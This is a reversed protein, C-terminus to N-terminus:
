PIRSHCVVPNEPLVEEVLCAIAGEHLKVEVKDGKQVDSSSKIISRGPLKYTISYGRSLIALPSLSDLRAVVGQFGEKKLALIHSFNKFISKMSTDLKHKFLQIRHEPNFSSIDKILKEVHHQRDKIIIKIANKLRVEVDDLRQFYRGIEREPSFVRASLSNIRERKKGLFTKQAYLLGQYLTGLHRLIDEKNKVVMEAAASPTPARLDAVFDAITYDIEHGVASIVPIRSNCIARAVIEENFPWLDEIGGGGRTVIIVDIGEIRNLDGIADVIEPAAREGQVSAPAIVIEVSAFRREIVTLIDRIAAGTPSTVIGIKKPFPPIPRKRAENFLGEKSLREKLQEFAMLLAGIGRPEMYEIVIQYEGRFEYVSIRGRCLVHLGEKPVFKLMRASPRFLVARIQSSSDKLTFYIHGSSPVRFNSIEGEIWVDTLKSELTSKIVSTLQSVSLIHRFPIDMQEVM